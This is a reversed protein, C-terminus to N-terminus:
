ARDIVQYLWKPRDEEQLMENAAFVQTNRTKYFTKVLLRTDGLRLINEDAKQPCVKQTIVFAYGATKEPEPPLIRTGEGDAIEEPWDRVFPVAIGKFTCAGDDRWWERHMEVAVVAERQEPFVIDNMPYLTISSLLAVAGNVATFALDLLTFM